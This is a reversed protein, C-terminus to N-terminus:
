QRSRQAYLQALIQSLLKIDKPTNEFDDWSKSATAWQGSTWACESAVRSLERMFFSRLNSETPARAAVRDMLDGLAAIGASHMLRSDSPPRGWAHSFTEKVASWYDILTELMANADSPEDTFSQFAALAGNPNNLSRRIMDLIASDSVIRGHDDSVSTRKILGRFPSGEHVDLAICLQSPLQRATLDRPLLAGRADPLLENILRRPLPKARNVLIFQERQVDLSATEFAVVPVLLDRNSTKELALSRQQGDVIWATRHGEPRVKITLRGPKVAESTAKPKTGRSHDFKANPELALIIANPFLTGGGDLYRVIENVHHRIEKRQFGNLARGKGRGLRRIDAIRLLEGGQLFMTYVVTEGQQTRLAPVVLEDNHM